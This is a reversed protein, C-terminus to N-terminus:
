LSGEKMNSLVFQRPHGVAAFYNLQAQNYQAEAQVFQDRADALSVQANIVQINDGLGSSFRDQALRLEDNAFDEVKKFALM